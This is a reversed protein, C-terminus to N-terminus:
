NKILRALKQAMRFEICKEVDDSPGRDKIRKIQDFLDKYKLRENKEGTKIMDIMNNKNFFNFCASVAERKGTEKEMIDFVYKDVIKGAKMPEVAKKKIEWAESSVEFTNFSGKEGFIEWPGNKDVRVLDDAKAKKFLEKVDM